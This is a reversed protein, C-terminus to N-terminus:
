NTQKILWQVLDHAAKFNELYAPLKRGDLYENYLWPDGIAFVTGKGVKSVAVITDGNDTLVAKAPANLTLTSIEKVYINQATKFIKNGKAINITGTPYDNGKVLNRPKNENFHIGFKGALQNYRTFEVNNSDNAFLMLVGGEKVWNYITEIHAPEIYNPQNNEKPWDPDIIFYIDAEKLREASVAETLKQTSVGYSNFINGL